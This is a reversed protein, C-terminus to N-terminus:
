ENKEDGGNAKPFGIDSNFENEYIVGLKILEVIFKLLKDPELAVNYTEIELKQTDTGCRTEGSFRLLISDKNYGVELNDLELIKEDIDKITYEDNNNLEDM